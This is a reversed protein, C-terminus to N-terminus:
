QWNLLFVVTLNNKQKYRFTALLSGIGQQADFLTNLFVPPIPDRAYGSM